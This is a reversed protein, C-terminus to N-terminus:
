CADFRACGLDGSPSDSGCTHPGPPRPPEGGLFLHNFVLIADTVELTGSDDTDAAAACSPTFGGRFLFRLIVIGDTINYAGDADVDGRRFRDGAGDPGAALSIAAATTTPVSSLGHVSVDTRVPEGSGVLGPEEDGAIRVFCPRDAAIIASDMAGRIKLVVFEGLPSLDRHNTFSLIVASVVGAQGDNKGSDVLETKEFSGAAADRQGPPRTDLDGVTERTSAAAVGFCPETTVSFSWGTVGRSCEFEESDILGDGDNDVGDSCGSVQIRDDFFDEGGICASPDSFCPELRSVLIIDVAVPVEDPFPRMVPVTWEVVDGVGVEPSGGVVDVRFQTESIEQSRLFPAGGAALCLSGVVVIRVCHRSRM